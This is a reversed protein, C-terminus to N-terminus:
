KIDLMFCAILSGGECLCIMYSCTRLGLCDTRTYLRNELFLYITPWEKWLLFVDVTVYFRREGKLCGKNKDKIVYSTWNYPSFRESSIKRFMSWPTSLGFMLTSFSKLLFTNTRFHSSLAKKLDDMELRLRSEHFCTETLDSTTFVFQFWVLIELYM